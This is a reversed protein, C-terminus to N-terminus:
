FDTATRIFFGSEGFQNYSYELKLVLDYITLFDVGFGATHLVRNPMMNNYRVDNNQNFVYGVNGYAKLFVKVPIDNYNKNKVLNRLHFDFVQYKPTFRFMAGFSGDVVYNELGQMTLAGYGMMKVNYYPLNQKPTYAVANQFQLYTRKMIPWSFTTNGGIQFMDLGGGLRLQSFGELKYGTLPYPNYDARLLNVSYNVEIFNSKARGNGLLSPNSVVSPLEQPPYVATPQVLEQEFS